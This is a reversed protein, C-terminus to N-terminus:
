EKLGWAGLDGEGAWIEEALAIVEESHNPKRQLVYLALSRYEKLARLSVRPEPNINDM